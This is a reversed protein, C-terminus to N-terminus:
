GLLVAANLTAYSLINLWFVAALGLGAFLTLAFGLMGHKQGLRFAVGFALVPVLAAMIWVFWGMVNLGLPGTVGAVLSAIAQWVIYAYFLGFLVGVVRTYWRAGAPRGSTIVDSM